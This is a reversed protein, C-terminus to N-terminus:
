IGLYEETWDLGFSFCILIYTGFLKCRQLIKPKKTELTEVRSIQITSFLFLEFTLAGSPNFDFPIM